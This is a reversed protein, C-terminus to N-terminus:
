VAALKIGLTTAEAAMRMDLTALEANMRRALAIHIADPTRLTLDLRRLVAEAARIDASSTEAMVANAGVWADFNALAAKAQRISVAGTRCRVGLVSAFEASAFDSVIVDAPRRAMFALVRSSFVDKVFLAVIVNADLYVSM